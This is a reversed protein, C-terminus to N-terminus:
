SEARDIGRVVEESARRDRDHPQGVDLLDRDVLAVQEGLDGALVRVGPHPPRRDGLQHIRGGQRRHGRESGSSLTRSSPASSAAPYRARRTRPGTGFVSLRAATSASDSTLISAADRLRREALFDGQARKAADAVRMRESRDGPVGLELRDPQRRERRELIAALDDVDRQVAVELVGRDGRDLPEVIARSRSCTAARPFFLLASLRARM